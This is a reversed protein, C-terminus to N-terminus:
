TVTCPGPMCLPAREWQVAVSVQATMELFRGLLTWRNQGYHHMNRAGSLMWPSCVASAFVLGRGAGQTVGPLVPNTSSTDQTPLCREMEALIKSAYEVAVRSTNWCLM